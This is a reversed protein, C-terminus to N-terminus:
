KDACAASLKMEQFSAPIAKKERDRERLDLISFRAGM